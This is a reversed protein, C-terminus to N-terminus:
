VSPSTMPTCRGAAWSHAAPSPAAISACARRPADTPPHEAVRRLSDGDARYLMTFAADLLRAAQAVIADLVRQQDTPSERILRLQDATAAERQCAADRQHEAEALAAARAAIRADTRATSGSAALNLVATYARPPRAAHPM